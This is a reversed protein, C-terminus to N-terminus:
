DTASFPAPSFFVPDSQDSLLRPAKNSEVGADDSELRDGFGQMADPGLVSYLTLPPTGPFSATLHEVLAEQNVPKHASNMASIALCLIEGLPIFQSQSIPSM